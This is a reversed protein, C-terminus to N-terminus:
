GKTIWVEFADNQTFYDPFTSGVRNMPGIVTSSIKQIRWSGDETTVSVRSINCVDERIRDALAETQARSVGAYSVMYGLVWDENTGALPGTPRQPTGTAPGVSLWPIFTATDPEGQWGYPVTPVANDGVPFGSATKIEEILYSTIPGRHVVFISM